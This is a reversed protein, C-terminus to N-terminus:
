TAEGGSTSACCNPCNSSINSWSAAHVGRDAMPDRCKHRKLTHNPLAGRNPHQKFQQGFFRRSRRAGPTGRIAVNIDSRRAIHFAACNPHQKFHQGFFRRSRRAGTGGL